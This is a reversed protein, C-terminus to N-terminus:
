QAADDDEPTRRVFRILRRRDRKGPRSPPRPASRYAMRRTASEAERRARSEESEAYAEAALSASVRRTLLARVEVEFTEEGRTVKLQDGVRIGRAAKARQGNWLVKNGKVARAALARTKFFRTAHLWLDLRVTNDDASDRSDQSAM